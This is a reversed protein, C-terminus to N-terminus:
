PSSAADHRRGGHEHRVAERLRHRGAPEHLGPQHTRQAPVLGPAADSTLKHGPAVVDPKAFGDYWTPGRSSYPAVRDDTRTETDQTMVAGVTLADPTNGPSAIGAYGVQGTDPNMGYNGASTVVVLGAQVAQEVAQDLPDTAADEYPPHGLSM